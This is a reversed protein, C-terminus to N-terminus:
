QSGAAPSHLDKRERERIQPSTRSGNAVPEWTTGRGDCPVCYMFLILLFSFVLSLSYITYVVATSYSPPSVSLGITWDSAQGGGEPPNRWCWVGPNVKIGSISGNTWVHHIYRERRKKRDRPAFDVLRSTDTRSPDLLSSAGSRCGFRESAIHRSIQNGKRTHQINKNGKLQHSRKSQAKKKTHSSPLLLHLTNNNGQNPTYISEGKHINYGWSLIDHGPRHANKIM